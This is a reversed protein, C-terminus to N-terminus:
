EAFISETSMVKAIGIKRHADHVVEIINEYFEMSPPNFEFKQEVNSYEIAIQFLPYKVM